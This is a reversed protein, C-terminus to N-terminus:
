GASLAQMNGAAVWMTLFQSLRQAIINSSRRPLPEKALSGVRFTAFTQLLFVRGTPWLKLQSRFFRLPTHASHLMIGPAIKIRRFLRFAM